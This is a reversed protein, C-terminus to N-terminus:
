NKRSVPHALLGPVGQITPLRVLEDGSGESYTRIKPFLLNLIEGELASDEATKLPSPKRGMEVVFEVEEETMSLVRIRNERSEEKVDNIEKVPTERADEENLGFL